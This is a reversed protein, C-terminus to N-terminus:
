YYTIIRKHITTDTILGANRIEMVQIWNDQKDHEAQDYTYTYESQFYKDLLSKTYMSVPTGKVSYQETHIRGSDLPISREDYEIINGQADYKFRALWQAGGDGCYSHQETNNGGEDYKFVVKQYLDGEQSCRKTEILRKSKDYSYTTRWGPKREREDLQTREIVSGDSAFKYAYAMISTVSDPNYNTQSLEYGNKDFKVIGKYQLFTQGLSYNYALFVISKVKGKLRYENWGNNVKIGSFSLLALCILLGTLSKM